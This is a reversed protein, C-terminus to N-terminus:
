QERLRVGEETSDRTKKMQGITKGATEYMFWTLLLGSVLSGLGYFWFNLYVGFAENVPTYVKLSIFCYLAAIAETIGAALGRTSAGFMESQLTQLLPGLGIDSFFCYLTLGLYLMWTYPKADVATKEHLYYYLGTLFHAAFCGFCSILLLPKRGIWDSLFASLVAIGTLLM